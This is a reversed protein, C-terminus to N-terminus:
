ISSPGNKQPIDSPAIDILLGSTFVLDFYEDKFPIDFAFGEIIYINKSRSKFLGVAYNNIEIGYLSKLGFRQLLLLHNGINSGIELVKVARDLKGIFLNNLETRTIGYNKRYLEDMEDLTVANRDTYEKGFDDRWEKMQETIESM